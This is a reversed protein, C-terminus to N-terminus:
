RFAAPLPRSYLPVATPAPALRNLRYTPRLITASMRITSPLQKLIKAMSALINFFPMKQAENLDAGITVVEQSDAYATTGPVLLAASIAAATFLSILKKNKM